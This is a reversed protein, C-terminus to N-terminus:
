CIISAENLKHNYNYTYKSPSSGTIKKFEVSFHKYDNYGCMDSVEQLTYYGTNIMSEAYRIRQNIVYRKPSVGFEQNFLKRFYVDSIHSKEAAAALSFDSKLYNENIYQISDYIKSNYNFVPKNDKYLESFVQYLVSSAEHKYSPKKATWIELAKKFLAYYKDPDQPYFCEVENSHYSISKFHIVILKDKKSIRTYDVASPFLSVSNDKLSIRNNKTEIITDSECRFSLAEFNRKSNYIKVDGQDLMLVDLIQFAISEQEFFM